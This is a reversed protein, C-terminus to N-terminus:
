QKWKQLSPVDFRTVRAMWPTPLHSTQSSFAFPMSLSQSVGSRPSIREEFSCCIVGALSSGPPLGAYVFGGHIDKEAFVSDGLVEIQHNPKTGKFCSELVVWSM